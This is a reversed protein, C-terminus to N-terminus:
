FIGCVVARLNLGWALSSGECYCQHCAPFASMSITVGRTGHHAGSTNCVIQVRIRLPQKLTRTPSLERRLSSITYLVYRSNHRETRDSNDKSLLAPFSEPVFVLNDRSSHNQKDWRATNALREARENGSVGSRGSGCFVTYGFVTSPQTCDM